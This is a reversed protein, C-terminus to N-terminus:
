AHSNPTSTHILGNVIPPSILLANHIIHFRLSRQVPESLSNPQDGKGNNASKTTSAQATQPTVGGSGTHLSDLAKRRDPNNRIQTSLTSQGDPRETLIFGISRLKCTGRVTIPLSSSWCGYCEPAFAGTQGATHLFEYAVAENIFHDTASYARDEPHHGIESEFSYYLPDYIKAVAEFSEAPATGKGSQTVTVAVLQAGCAAGIAIPATVVLEATEKRLRASDTKTDNGTEINTEPVLSSSAMIAESHTVTELYDRPLEPGLAAATPVQRRQIEVTFGLTYPLIPKDPDEPPKWFQLAPPSAPRELIDQIWSPLERRKTPQSLNNPNLQETSM